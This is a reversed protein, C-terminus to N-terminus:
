SIVRVECTGRRHLTACCRLACPRLDFGALTAGALNDAGFTVIGTITFTRPQGDSLVRM